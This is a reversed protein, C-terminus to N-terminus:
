VGGLVTCRGVSPYPADFREFAPPGGHCLYAQSKGNAALEQRVFPIGSLSAERQLGPDGSLDPVDRGCDRVAEWLYAEAVWAQRICASDSVNATRQFSPGACGSVAGLALLVGVPRLNVMIGNGKRM